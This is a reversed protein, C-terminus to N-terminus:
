GLGPFMHALEADVQEDTMGERKWHIRYARLFRYQLLAVGVIGAASAIWLLAALGNLDLLSSVFGAAIGAALAAAGRKLIGWEPIVRATAFREPDFM